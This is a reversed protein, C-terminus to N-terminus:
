RSNRKLSFLLFTLIFVPIAIFVFLLNQVPKTLPEESFTEKGDNDKTKDENEKAEADLRKQTNVPHTPADFSEFASLAVYGFEGHFTAFAAGEESLGYVAAKQGSLVSCVPTTMAKDAYIVTNKLATVVIKPYLPFSPSAKEVASKEVYGYLKAYSSDSEQYSVKYYGDSESVLAVYFDRPLTFLASDGGTPELSYFAADKGILLYQKDSASTDPLPSAAAFVVVATLVSLINKLM